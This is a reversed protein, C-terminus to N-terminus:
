RFAPDYEKRAPRKPSAAGATGLPRVEWHVVAAESMPNTLLFVYEGPSEPDFLVKSSGAVRVRQVVQGNKHGLMLVVSRGPGEKDLRVEIECSSTEMKVDMRVGRGPELIIVKPLDSLPITM